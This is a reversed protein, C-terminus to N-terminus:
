SGGVLLGCRRGAVSLCCAVQLLFCKGLSCSVILVCSVVFLLCCVVVM